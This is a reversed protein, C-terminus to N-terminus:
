VCPMAGRAVEEAPAANGGQWVLEYDLAEAVTGTWGDEAAKVLNYMERATVYHYHFHRDARARRALAQHFRVMPGGLLAEHNAEDAGHTHLKVFFWDPRNPVQVRARLWLDLREPSPPQSGQLTANEIKPLLGFKRRRWDLLLPGQILLLADAPAPGGGVEVGTDHSCPRLPDDHAYYIRNITRTQAASPASPLTFDAYCGTERLVDLENNVGCWRGDPLSNDLAWNGHIFGYALAGTHRHRSLLGHRASLVETFHWLTARLNDATDRDHHLHVEVEGFGRRCLGALLDLYESEYEEAPYFFTHRPARGDGDTFGGLQRPYEEVWRRVRAASKAPGAGGEKPEYHDAVCLLVHVEEGPWPPRRRARDRLYPGLWRGMNRRRVEYGALGLGLALGGLPPLLWYPSM